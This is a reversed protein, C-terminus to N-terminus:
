HSSSLTSTFTRWELALSQLCHEVLSSFEAFHHTETDNSYTVLRYIEAKALYNFYGYTDQLSKVTMTEAPLMKACAQAKDSRLFSLQLLDAASLMWKGADGQAWLKSKRGELREAARLYTQLRAEREKLVEKL